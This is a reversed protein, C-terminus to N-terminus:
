PRKEEDSGLAPDVAKSGCPAIEVPGEAHPPLLDALPQCVNQWCLRYGGGYSSNALVLRAQPTAAPRWHWRGNELVAGEGPQMGAGSGAVSAEVLVLGAGELRWQERWETKEVSHTWALAFTDAPLSAVITETMLLCVPM